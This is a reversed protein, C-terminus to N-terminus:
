DDRGCGGGCGGVAERGEMVREVLELLTGYAAGVAALLGDM